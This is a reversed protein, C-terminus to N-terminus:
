SAGSRRRPTPRPVNGFGHDVLFAEGAAVMQLKKQPSRSGTPSGVPWAPPRHNTTFTCGGTPPSRACSGGQAVGSGGVPQSRGARPGGRHRPPLRGSRGCQCRRRDRQHWPSKGLEAIQSSSIGSALLLVTAARKRHVGAPQGRGDRVEEHLLGIEKVLRRADETERPAMSPSVATVARAQAGLALSAAKAAVASDLGGSVAWSVGGTGSSSRM